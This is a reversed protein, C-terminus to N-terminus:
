DTDFSSIIDFDENKFNMAKVLKAKLMEQIFSGDIALKVGVMATGSTFLVRDM